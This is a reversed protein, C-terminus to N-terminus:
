QRGHQEEKELLKTTSETVSAPELDNTDRWAGTKPAAYASAPISQKGPLAQQAGGHLGLSTPPTPQMQPPLLFHYKKSSPLMALSGLMIMMAGFVAIAMSMEIPVDPANAINMMIAFLTFLMFWLFGFIVGNKKNFISKKKNLEALQPLFGGHALVEAILGMPFGCRSCFKIENSVQQQGCSPCHM